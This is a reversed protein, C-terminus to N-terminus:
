AEPSSHRGDEAGFGENLANLSRKFTADGLIDENSRIRADVFDELASATVFKAFKSQLDSLEDDGFQRLVITSAVFPQAPGIGITTAYSSWKWDEPRSVLGARVPNMAIYRCLALLYDQRQVIQEKFRGQFVHGVRDYKHNWWQAYRGNLHRIPDSITPDNSRLTVHYHNPMLCYSWCELGFREVVEGLFHVFWTYDVDDLFIHMKGNGRAMVHRLMGPATLRRGRAMDYATECSAGVDRVVIIGAVNRTGPRVTRPCYAHIRVNVSRPTTLSLLGLHPRMPRPRPGAATQSKILRTQGQDSGRRVGTQGGDSGVAELLAV